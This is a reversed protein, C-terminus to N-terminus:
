KKYGSYFDLKDTRLCKQGIVVVKLNRINPGSSMTPIYFNIRLHIYHIPNTILMYVKTSAQAALSPMQFSQAGM